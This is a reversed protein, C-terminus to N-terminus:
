KKLGQEALRKLVKNRGLFTWAKIFDQIDLDSAHPYLNKIIDIKKNLNDLSQGEVKQWLLVASLITNFIVLPKLEALFTWIASSRDIEYLFIPGLNSYESDSFCEKKLDHFLSKITKSIVEHNFLPLNQDYEFQLHLIYVEMSKYKDISGQGEDFINWINNLDINKGIWYEYFDM